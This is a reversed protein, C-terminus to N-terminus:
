NNFPTKKENTKSLKRVRSDYTQMAVQLMDKIYSPRKIPVLKNNICVVEPVTIGLELELWAAVIHRHCFYEPEEYCLLVRGKLEEYVEHPDLGHLVTDYYREVYYVCSEHFDLFDKLQEWQKWWFLKPALKLYKDGHYGVSRGSDGSISIGRPDDQINEYSGTCIMNVDEPEYLSKLDLKDEEPLKKNIKNLLAMNFYLENYYPNVDTGNISLENLVMLDAEQLELFKNTDEPSLKERKLMETAALYDKRYFYFIADLPGTTKIIIPDLNVLMDKHYELFGNILRVDEKHEMLYRYISNAKEIYKKRFLM